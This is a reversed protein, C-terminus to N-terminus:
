VLVPLSADALTMLLPIHQQEGIQHAPIARIASVGGKAEGIRPVPTVLIASAVMIEVVIRRAPIVLIASVVV